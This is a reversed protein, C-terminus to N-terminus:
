KSIDLNVEVNDQTPEGKHFTNPAAREILRMVDGVLFLADPMGLQM